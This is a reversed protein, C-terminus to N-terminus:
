AAWIRPFGSTGRDSGCGWSRVAREMVRRGDPFIEPAVFTLDGLYKRLELLAKKDAQMQAIERAAGEDAKRGEALLNQWAVEPDPRDTM